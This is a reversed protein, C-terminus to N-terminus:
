ESLRSLEWVMEETKGAQMRDLYEAIKDTLGPIGTLDQGWFSEQSLVCDTVQRASVAGDGNGAQWVEAFFEQVERSDRIPYEAGADTTGIMGDATLRGRYFRILAAFSFCLREPLVGAKERYGLLTPLCRTRFKSISNMSIDLLRHRIFPNRFRETVYGAFATLKEQPLDITPIVEEQLLGALFGAFAQDEMLEQVQEYGALVGALVTSTHGGNLIRVKRTKYPKVDDTWIVNGEGRGLPIIDSWSKCGEIVWLDFLECAVMARDTYGLGAWLEEAEAGPYGTVIRDVLTSTFHNEEEVWHIFDEELEWERAYRLIIRRLEYGNNDILEVPLFLLGHGDGGFTRYRIYLLQTLKAPFSQPPRDDPRDGARYVIGAETTNSIVVELDPSCFLKKLEELDDYANICRSVSTVLHREEVPKGQQSGRMLVTYNGDQRQLIERLAEGGRIPQCLVISGQYLGKENLDDIMWDAFARLFNGEGFQLIKEPYAGFNREAAESIHKM